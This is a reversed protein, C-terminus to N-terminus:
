LDVWETGPLRVLVVDGRPFVRVGPRARQRDLWAQKAAEPAGLRDGDPTLLVWGGEAPVTTALMRVDVRSIVAPGLDQQAVVPAGRPVQDVLAVADALTDTAVYRGPVWPQWSAIKVIGMGAAWTVGVAATVAVLGRARGTRRPRTLVDLLAFAAIPVLLVDYHFYTQWYSTNSSAARWALTPLALLAIPSRLGVVGATLVFLVAPAWRVGDAVVAGELGQPNGTAGLLFQLYPNRHDPSAAVIVANAVLLGAVGLATLTLSRRRERTLLWWAAGAAAVTLGQDEKVLLLGAGCWVVLPFRRELLGWCLGAALPAGLATEHVDFSAASIMGKALGAALALALAVAAPLRRVAAAAVIGAAVAMALSQVIILSRPDPWIRYGIGFLVTIPSFHDAFLTDVSRISSAPLRGASWHQAAQTFIGLDYNGSRGTSFRVWGLALYCAFTIVAVGVVVARRASPRVDPHM